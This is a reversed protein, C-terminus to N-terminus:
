KAGEAVDPLNLEGIIRGILPALVGSIEFLQTNMQTMEGISLEITSRHLGGRRHSYVRFAVKPDAAPDTPLGMLGHAMVQRLDNFKRFEALGDLLDQRYSALPGPMTALTEALKLRSEIKFPLDGISQYEPLLRARVLLENVACEVGAHQHIFNGREWIAQAKLSKAGRATTM